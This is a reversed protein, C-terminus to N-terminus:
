AQRRGSPRLECEGSGTTRKSRRTGQADGIIKRYSEAGRAGFGSDVVFIVDTGRPLPPLLDKRFAPQDLWAVLGKRPAPAEVRVDTLLAKDQFGWRGVVRKIGDLGLDELLARDNIFFLGDAEFGKIDTGQAVASLYAPHTAVHPRKAETVDFVATCYDSHVAALPKMKEPETTVPSEDIPCSILVLDDGEFWWSLRPRAPADLVELRAPPAEEGPPDDRKKESEGAIQYVDRGRLRVPSPLQKMEPVALGLKLLRELQERIPKEGFGNLVLTCALNDEDVEHVAAVFGRRTLHEHLAILDAGTVKCDPVTKFLRDLVQKALETMMSGAPTKVLLGHAATAKWADAHADLGDFEVYAIM